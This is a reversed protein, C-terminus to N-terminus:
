IEFVSSCEQQEGCIGGALLFIRDQYKVIQYGAGSEEMKIKTIFNNQAHVSSLLLLMVMIFTLRMLKTQTSQNTEKKSITKPYSKRLILYVYCYRVSFICFKKM